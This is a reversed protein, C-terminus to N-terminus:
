KSDSTAVSRWERLKAKARRIQEPSFAPNAAIKDIIKGARLFDRCYAAHAEALKLWADFDQPQTRTQSELIEIASTLHGAALLEDPSATRADVEVKPAVAPRNRVLLSEVSEETKQRPPVGGSWEKICRRAYEDFAPPMAPHRAFTQLALRASEPQHMHVARIRMLLFAAGANAPEKKLLAELQTVAEDFREAGALQQVEALAASRALCDDAFMVAYMEFLTTEIAMASVDSSELLARCLEIAEPNRGDRVLEALRDLDRASQAPNFERDDPRDVLHMVGGSSLEALCGMWFPALPLMLIVCIFGEVIGGKLFQAAGLGVIILTLFCRLFRRWLDAIKDHGIVKPDYGSLWWTLGATCLLVMILTLTMGYHPSFDLYDFSV